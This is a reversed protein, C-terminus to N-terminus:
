LPREFGPALARIFANGLATGLATWVDAGPNPLPGKMPIRAAHQNEETNELVEEAIEIAMAWFAATMTGEAADGFSRIDLDHFLVKLYGGLSRGDAVMETYGSFTGSNFTLNGAKAALPNLTVLDVHELQARAVFIPARALVDVDGDIRLMGNGPTTATLRCPCRHTLAPEPIILDDVQAAINTIAATFGRREDTYRIEGDALNLSTLRMRIVTRVPEQWPASPVRQDPLPQIEQPTEPLSTHDGLPALVHLIPRTITGVGMLEGRLLPLWEIDCRIKDVDLLPVWTGGDRRIRLELGYVTYDGTLLGLSVDSISGRVKDGDALAANTIRVLIIPAAIRLLVAVVVLVLVIQRWHGRRGTAWDRLGSILAGLHRRLPNM